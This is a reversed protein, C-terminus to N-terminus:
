KRGASFVFLRYDHRRIPCHLVGNQWQFKGDPDKARREAPALDEPREELSSPLDKEEAQAQANGTIDLNDSNAPKKQTTADDRFYQLLEPDADAAQIREPTTDGFGMAKPDLVAKAQVREKGVNAVLVMCKGPRKWASIKVDPHDPAALGSKEWYPVFCVDPQKLGFDGMVKENFGWLIDHLALSAVYARTQRYTWAPWKDTKLSNGCWGLWTTTLGWKANHMFRMRDLPWHDIFDSQNPPASYFDEGDLILDFFTHYPVFFTHTTHATLHPWVGNDWSIQRMRRIRERFGLFEFGPQVHGDVLAYTLPGGAKTQPINWCDDLYAGQVFKGTKQLWEQWAWSSFEIFAPTYYQYDPAWTEAWERTHALPPIGNWQLDWYLGPVTLMQPPPQAIGQAKLRALQGEYLGKLGAAGKGLGSGDCRGQVADWGDEPYLYFASSADRGKLNNGCFSDPYVNSYSPSLRWKEDLQRVPIPHLGFAFSRPADLKVPSSFISLVLTVTNGQREVSVAPVDTSQTWGRDSEAFWAMGRRMGTLMIYPMFSGRLEKPLAVSAQDNSRFVVGDRVPLDGIHVVKPDRFNREGSWWHIMTANAAAYPIRLTLAYVTAGGPGPTLTVDFWMLGDYEITARTTVTMNGPAARGRLKVVTDTATEVQLGVDAGSGQIGVELQLPGALVDEGASIVKEPLGSPGFRVERCSMSVVPGNVKLPTWEPMVKDSVGGKFGWWPPPMRTFSDELKALTAGAADLIDAAVSYRAFELPPTRIEVLAQKREDLSVSAEGAPKAEGAKTVRASITAADRYKPSLPIVDLAVRGSVGNYRMEMDAAPLPALQTRPDYLRVLNAIEAPALPRRYVRFDDIVSRPAPVKLQEWYTRNGFRIAEPKSNTWWEPRAPNRQPDENPYIPLWLSWAGGPDRRKGNVYYTFGAGEWTLAIHTWQGPTLDVPNQVGEDMRMELNFELLPGARGFNRKYSGAAYEGDIQFLGFSFPKPGGFRTSRTLNDWNVPRLWFAITGRATEVNGAGKYVPALSGAGTGLGTGEVASPFQSRVKEAATEEDAQSVAYDPAQTGPAALEPKLTKNFGARFLLDAPDRVYPQGLRWDTKREPQVWALGSEYYQRVTASLRIEDVVGKFGATGDPTNGVLFADLACEPGTHEKFQHRLLCSGDVYVLAQESYPWKCSWALALHVWMGPKCRYDVAPLPTGRWVLQPAGETTIQFRVPQAQAQSAGPTAYFYALVAPTKPLEDIKIHLEFTRADLRQLGRYLLRGDGGKFRLGGGFRGGAVLECDGALQAPKQALNALRGSNRVSRSNGDAAAEAPEATVADLADTRKEELLNDLNVEKRAPVREDLHFLAQTLSDDDFPAWIAERSLRWPEEAPTAAAAAGALLGAVLATVVALASRIRCLPRMMLKDSM